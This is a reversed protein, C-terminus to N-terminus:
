KTYDEFADLLRGRQESLIDGIIEFAVVHKDTPANIRASLLYAFVLNIAEKMENM